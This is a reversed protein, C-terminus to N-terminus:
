TIATANRPKQCLIRLTTENLVETYLKEKGEFKVMETNSPIEENKNVTLKPLALKEDTIYSSGSKTTERTELLNEEPTTILTIDLIDTKVEENSQSIISKQTMDLANTKVEENIQSIVTKEM